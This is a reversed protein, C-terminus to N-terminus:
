YSGSDEQIAGGGNAKFANKATTDAGAMDLMLDLGEAQMRPMRRGAKVDDNIWNYMLRATGTLFARADELDNETPEGGQGLHAWRYLMPYVEMARYRILAMHMAHRATQSM